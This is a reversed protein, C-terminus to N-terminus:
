KTHCSRCLASGANDVTLLYDNSYSNHVDHCTTCQIKDSELVVTSPLSSPDKLGAIGGETDATVLAATYSFSYPHESTGDNRRGVSAIKESGTAIAYTDGTVGGFADLNGVGDHCTLCLVSTGDPIWVNSNNDPDLPDDQLYDAYAEPEWTGSANFSGDNADFTNSSYPTYITQDISAPDARNWLPSNGTSASNHAIHCVICTRGSNSGDGAGGAWTEDSFDHATGEMTGQALGYVAFMCLTITLFLSKTTRMLSLNLILISYM